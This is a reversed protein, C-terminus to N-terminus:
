INFTNRRREEEDDSSESDSDSSDWRNKVAEDCKEDNVFQCNCFSDGVQDWDGTESNISVPDEKYGGAASCWSWENMWCTWESEWDTTGDAMVSKDYRGGSAWCEEEDLIPSGWEGSM